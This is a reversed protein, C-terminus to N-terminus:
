VCIHRRVTPVVPRVVEDRRTIRTYSPDRVVFMIVYIVIFFAIIIHFIESFFCARQLSHSFLFFFFVSYSYFLYSHVASAISPHSLSWVVNFNTYTIYDTRANCLSANTYVRGARSKGPDGVSSKFFFVVYTKYFM